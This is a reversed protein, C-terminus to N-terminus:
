PTQVAESLREIDAASLCATEDARNISYQVEGTKRPQLAQRSLAQKLYRSFRTAGEGDLVVRQIPLCRTQAATDSHPSPTSSSREGPTFGRPAQFRNIETQRAEAQQELQAPSVPQQQAMASIAGLLLFCSLYRM